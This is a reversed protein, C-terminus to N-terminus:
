LIPSILLVPMLASILMLSSFHLILVKSISVIPLSILPLPLYISAYSSSSLILRKPDSPLMSLMRSERLSSTSRWTNRCLCPEEQHKFREPSPSPSPSPSTKKRLEPPDADFFLKNLVTKRSRFVSLRAQRCVCMCMCMCM